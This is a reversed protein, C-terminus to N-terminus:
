KLKKLPRGPKRYTLGIRQCIKETRKLEGTRYPGFVKVLVEHLHHVSNLREVIRWHFLMFNYIELASSGMGGVGGGCPKRAFATAFALLFERMNEYQQDVCSALARKALRRLDGYWEVVLKNIIDAGKEIQEPTFNSVDVKKPNEIQEQIWEMLWVGIACQHGIIAGLRKPTIKFEEKLKAVPYMQSGVELELKEVWQPCGEDPFLNKIPMSAELKIFEDALKKLWDQRYKIPDFPIDNESM